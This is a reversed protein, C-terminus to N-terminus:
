FYIAMDKTKAWKNQKLVVGGILIIGKFQLTVKMEASGWLIGPQFLVSFIDGNHLFYSHSPFNLCNFLNCSYYVSSKSGLDGPEGM